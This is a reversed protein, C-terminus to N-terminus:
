PASQNFAKGFLALESSLVLTEVGFMRVVRDRSKKGLEILDSDLASLVGEALAVSNGPDVSFGVDDVIWASDGVDTAVCPRECAMAEAITNSFGEGSSSSCVVDMASYVAALDDSAPLCILKAGLPKALDSEALSEIGDGVCVFQVNERRDAILGAATLYNQHDKMPDKRAVIGVVLTEDNVLWDKRLRRRGSPDFSFKETDIGNPVVIFKSEPYGRQIAYAKGARSNCIIIEPIWSLIREVYYAYRSLRDYAYLDMNSARIGWVIKTRKAFPRLLAALVNPATLYSHLVDPDLTRVAKILRWWFGILDWRGRKHLCILRVGSAALEEEFPGGQYFTFISVKHGKEALGYALLVLQREAGGRMLGRTLFAVNM